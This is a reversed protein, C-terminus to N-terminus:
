WSSRASSNALYYLSTGETPKLQPAGDFILAPSLTTSSRNVTATQAISNSVVAEETEPTGPVNALVNEVPSDPPIKAFDAPLSQGPVVRGTMNQVFLLQTGTIPVFNPQGDIVILETPSTDVFIVPVPDKGLSPPPTANGALATPTPRIIV